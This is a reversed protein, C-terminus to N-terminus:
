VTPWQMGLAAGTIPGAIGDDGQPGFASRQFALLARITRDGFDGDTLGEYFGAKKLAKQLKEVLSGQSGFRLKAPMAVDLGRTAVQQVERGNLLLYSFGKQALAYANRHFTAWPGIAPNGNRAACKPYGVIVQCGASAFDAHSVGQCWAAHINDFPNTVEVTDDTDFDLDDASRRIPHAHTQRFAAHGTAKGALHEGKRYDVYCGTTLMNAGAGGNEKARAVYKQHPVTSGPFVALLAQAPKWQGIVCRPHRHDFAAIELEAERQFTQDDVAVPLCGRIGFFALSESPLPFANITCLRELHAASLTFPM